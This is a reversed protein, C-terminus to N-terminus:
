EGCAAIRNSLNWRMRGRPSARTVRALALIRAQGPLFSGELPLFVSQKDADLLVQRQRSPLCQHKGGGGGGFKAALVLAEFGGIQELLEKPWSQAYLVLAPRPAEEFVPRRM